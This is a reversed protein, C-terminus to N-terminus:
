LLMVKHETHQFDDHIFAISTDKLHFINYKHLSHPINFAVSTLIFSPCHFDIARINKIGSHTSHNVM